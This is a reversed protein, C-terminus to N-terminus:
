LGNRRLEKGKEGVVKMPMARVFDFISSLKLDPRSDAFRELWAVVRPLLDLERDFLPRMDLHRHTQLIKKAAVHSKDKGFNLRLMTIVDRSINATYGVCLLIHNSGHTANISTPNCLFPLFANWGTEIENRSLDLSVISTPLGQILMALGDDGIRNRSLNLTRLSRCEVLGRALSQVCNGDFLNGTLDLEQLGAMHPFIASLAASSKSSMRMDKLILRQMCTCAELSPICRAMIDDDLDNDSDDGIDYHDYSIELHELSKMDSFTNFLANVESVGLYSGDSFFNTIDNNTVVPGLKDVFETLDADDFRLKKVHCCRGLDEFFRDISQESCQVTTAMNRQTKQQGLLRLTGRNLEDEAMDDISMTQALADVNLTKTPTM